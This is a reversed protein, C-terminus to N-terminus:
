QQNEQKLANLVIDVAQPADPLNRCFAHGKACRREWGPRSWWCPRCRELCVNVNDKFGFTAVPTPGFFVVSRTGVARAVYVLGGEVDIHRRAGAIVAATANIPLDRRDVCECIAKERSTGVQVPVLGAQRVAQAIADMTPVPLCKAVAQGGAGNHLTIYPERITRPASECRGRGEDGSAQGEEAEPQIFLDDECVDLGSSRALMDWQSQGTEALHANAWPFRSYDAAYRALRANAAAQEAAFRRMSRFYTGVVYQVDYFIDFAPALDQVLMRWDAPPVQICSDVFRCGHLMADNAGSKDFKSVLTITAERRPWRRRAARAFALQQMFDGHGGLKFVGIHLRRAFRKRHTDIEDRIVDLM